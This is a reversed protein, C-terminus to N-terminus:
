FCKQVFKFRIGKISHLSNFGWSLWNVYMTFASSQYPFKHFALPSNLSNRERELLTYETKYVIYLM